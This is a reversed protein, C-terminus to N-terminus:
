LHSQPARCAAIYFPLDETAAAAEKIANAKRAKSNYTTHKFSVTRWSVKIPICETESDTSDDAGDALFYKIEPRKRKPYRAVDAEKSVAKISQIAKTSPLYGAPLAFMDLGSM